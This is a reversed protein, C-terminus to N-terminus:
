GRAELPFRLMVTSGLPPFKIQLRIGRFEALDWGTQQGVYNFLDNYGPVLATAVASM